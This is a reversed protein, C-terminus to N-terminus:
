AGCAGAHQPRWATVLHGVLPGNPGSIAAIGNRPQDVLEGQCLGRGIAITVLASPHLQEATITDAM